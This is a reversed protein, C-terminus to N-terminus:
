SGYLSCGRRFPRSSHCRSHAGRRITCHRPSRVWRWERGRGNCRQLRRRLGGCVELPLKWHLCLRHLRFCVCLGISKLRSSCSGCDAILVLNCACFHCSRSTSTTHQWIVLRPPPAAPSGGRSTAEGMGIAEATCAAGCTSCWAILRREQRTQDVSTAKGRPLIFEDCDSCATRQVLGFACM